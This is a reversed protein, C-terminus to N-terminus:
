SVVEVVSSGTLTTFSGGNPLSGTDGVRHIAVGNATCTASGTLAIGTHGCNAVCIDGVRILGATGDKINSSGSGAQFTITVIFQVFHARCIGTGTSGEIAAKSM